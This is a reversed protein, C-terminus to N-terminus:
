GMKRAEILMNQVIEKNVSSPLNCIKDLNETIEKHLTSVYELLYEYTYKGNRIDLIMNRDWTRVVNFGKNESMEKAMHLLRITHGMNKRDFKSDGNLDYRDPNRKKVWEQYEKYDKCHSTYGDKNYTMIVIPLKGKPVSETRVDNSENNEGVIGHYGSPIVDFITDYECYKEMSKIFLKDNEDETHQLKFSLDDMKKDDRLDVNYECIIHTGFDYYLGYTNHMNPLPVLGCYKQKLGNWKLWKDVNTSGQNHPVYCFDLVTKRETVPNVMKKNLGKAKKIQGYGYSCTVNVVNKTLFIEKNDLIYKVSPHIPGIIKDEPVYLSEIATPNAKLLLEVWRSLEYFTTDNKEDSVQEIYNESLGILYDQPIIFVGGIDIDSKGNPLSTNYLTSGRVYEYAIWGRDRLDQITLKEM